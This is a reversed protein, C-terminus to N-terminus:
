KHSMASAFNGIWALKLFLGTDEHDELEDAGTDMSKPQGRPTLLLLPVLGLLLVAPLYFTFSWGVGWLYGCAVPGLMLGAAWLINFLGLNRSLEQRGGTTLEALWAQISPWFLSLSAGSIPVVCLVYRWAGLNPLVFWALAAGVCGAAACRRRGLRDSIGGSLLCGVTYALSSVTAFLGLVVNPAHLRYIGLNQTALGIMAVYFDMLFAALILRHAPSLPQRGPTM